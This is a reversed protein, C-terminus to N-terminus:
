GASGGIMSKSGILFSQIIDMSGMIIYSASDFKARPFNENSGLCGVRMLAQQVCGLEEIAARYEAGASQCGHLAKILHYTINAAAIL